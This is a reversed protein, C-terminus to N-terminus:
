NQNIVKSLELVNILPIQSNYTTNIAKIVENAIVAQGLHTPYIGDSSFFNGKISGTIQAGDDTLYSGQHIEAYIKALDVLALKHKAAFQRIQSNYGDAFEPDSLGEELETIVDRDTLKAERGRFLNDVQESPVFYKIKTKDQIAESQYSEVFAAVNDVQASVPYWNFFALDQYRPITFLVAKKGGEILSTVASLDIQGTVLQSQYFDYLNVRETKLLKTIWQDFFDEILVLDYQQNKKVFDVPSIIGNQEIPLVRWLYPQYEFWQPFNRSDIKHTFRLNNLTAKPFAWNNVRGRYQTFTPPSGPKIVALKDNVKKWSPYEDRGESFVMYGTGNQENEDFLPTSFDGIGMQIAVLNPYAFLQGERYLGGNTLGATLGGGFAIMKPKAIGALASQSAGRGRKIFDLAKLDFKGAVDGSIMKRNGSMPHLPPIADNKSSDAAATFNSNHPWRLSHCYGTHSYMLTAALLCKPVLHKM